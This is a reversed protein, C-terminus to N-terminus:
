PARLFLAYREGNTGSPSTGGVLYFYVSYYHDKNGTFGAYGQPNGGPEADPFIGQLAGMLAEAEDYLYLDCDDLGTNWRAGLQV